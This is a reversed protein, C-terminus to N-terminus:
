KRGGPKSAPTPQTTSTQKQQNRANAQGEPHQPNMGRARQDEPVQKEQGKQPMEDEKHHDSNRCGASSAVIQGNHSPRPQRRRTQVGRQQNTAGTPMCEYIENPLDNQPVAPPLALVLNREGPHRLERARCRVSCGVGGDVM